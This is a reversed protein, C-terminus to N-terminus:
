LIARQRSPVGIRVAVYAKLFKDYRLISFAGRRALVAIACAYVVPDGLPLLCDGQADDYPALSSELQETLLGTEVFSTQPPYLIFVEGHELAPQVNIAPVLCRTHPDRKHPIQTVYVTPMNYRTEHLNEAHSELLFFYFLPM